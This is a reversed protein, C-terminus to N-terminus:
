KFYTYYDHLEKSAVVGLVQEFIRENSRLTSVAKQLLLSMDDKSDGRRFPLNKSIKRNFEYCGVFIEEARELSLDNVVPNGFGRFGAYPDSIVSERSVEALSVRGSRARRDDPLANFIKKPITFAFVNNTKVIAESSLFGRPIIQGIKERVVEVVDGSQLGLLRAYEEDVYKREDVGVLTFFMPLDQMFKVMSGSWSKGFDSKLTQSNEGRTFSFLEDDYGYGDLDFRGM